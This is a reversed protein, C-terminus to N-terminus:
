KVTIRDQVKEYASTDGKLDEEIYHIVAEYDAITGDLLIKKNKMFELMGNGGKKAAYDFLAITYTKSPDIPVYENGQLVMVEQLRREGEISLLNDLNDVVVSTPISTDITFKIGSVQPFNGNEGITTVHDNLVYQKQTDRVFYEFMDLIDQGTLEVVCLMNGFPCVSIVDKYTINGAKVTERVGGGNAYAIDAGTVEKFADAVLDGINTERTRVIRVGSEDTISLDVKTTGITHSLMDEYKGVIEQIKEEVIQDKDKIDSINSVTISGDKSIVLQGLNALKTGTQACIVNKGEKDKQCYYTFTSHSHGDLLVDIGSTNAITKISTYPSNIEDEVGIGLHGLLVVYDAGEKRAADVSKQITDYFFQPNDGQSFDYVYEGDEMFNVPTSTMLSNPTSVGIYAIKIKGYTIIKYPKLDKLYNEGKGSYNINCNLYEANAKDILSKLKKMGYDFEHNGLIALDYGILNMAEIIADGRSVAGLYSGQVADGCDVLTVYKSKAEMYKKYYSVGALGANDEIGCHIDNTFLIVIDDNRVDKKTCGTLCTVVLLLNILLLIIKKM